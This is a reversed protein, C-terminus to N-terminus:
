KKKILIIIFLFLNYVKIFIIKLVIKTYRNYILLYIILDILFM